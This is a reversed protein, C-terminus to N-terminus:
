LGIQGMRATDNRSERSLGVRARKADVALHVVHRMQDRCFAREGRDSLGARRSNRAPWHRALAIEVEIAEDKSVCRKASSWILDEEWPILHLVRMTLLRAKRPTEFWSAEPSAV